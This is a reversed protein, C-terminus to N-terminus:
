IFAKECRIALKEEYQETSRPGYKCIKIWLIRQQNSWDEAIDESSCETLLEGESTQLQGEEEEDSEINYEDIPDDELQDMGGIKLKQYTKPKGFDAM